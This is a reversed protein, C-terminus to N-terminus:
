FIVIFNNIRIINGQEKAIFTMANIEVFDVFNRILIASDKKAFKVFKEKKKTILIM